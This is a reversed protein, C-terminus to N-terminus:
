QKSWRKRWQQARPEWFPGERLVALLGDLSLDELFMEHSESVPVPVKKGDKAKGASRQDPQKWGLKVQSGDSAVALISLFPDAALLAQAAHPLGGDPSLSMVVWQVDQQKVASILDTGQNVEGVLRLDPSKIIAHRLMERLLRTEVALIVGSPRQQMVNEDM